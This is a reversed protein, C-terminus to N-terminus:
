GPEERFERAYVEPCHTPIFRVDPRKKAFEHLQLLTAATFAGSETFLNTVPHPLRNEYIARTLYCADAVFFVTGQDTEAILGMQGRAHGLLVALRLSGDGFLDYVQGFGPESQAVQNLHIFATREDYDVPVLDPLFAKALAWLGRRWRVDEWGLVSAVFRANPFDKLGGIHDPHYHSVIITGIDDPTLDYNALQTAVAWEPKAVFPVARQYLAYPTRESAAYVRPAYGTDFLMWGHKPHHLLAALAHCRVDVNRGGRMLQSEKAHTYGTDLLHFRIM